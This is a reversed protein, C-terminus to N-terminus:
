NVWIYFYKEYHLAYMSFIANWDKKIKKKKLKVSKKGRKLNFKSNTGSSQQPTRLSQSVTRLLGREYYLDQLRPIRGRSVHSRGWQRHRSICSPDSVDCTNCSVTCLATFHVRLSQFILVKILSFYSKDLNKFHLRNLHTPVVPLFMQITYMNLNKSDWSSCHLFKLM